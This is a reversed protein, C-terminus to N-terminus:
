ERAYVNPAPYLLAEFRYKHKTKKVSTSSDLIYCKIKLFLVCVLPYKFRWTTLISM